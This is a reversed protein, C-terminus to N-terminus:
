QRREMQNLQSDVMLPARAIDEMTDPEHGANAWRWSWARASDHKESVEIALKAKDGHTGHDQLFTNAGMATDPAETGVSLAPATIIWHPDCNPFSKPILMYVEATDQDYNPVYGQLRYEGMWVLIENGERKVPAAPKHEKELIALWKQEKPEFTSIPENRPPPTDTIINGVSSRGSTGDDAAQNARPEREGM